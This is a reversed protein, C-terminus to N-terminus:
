TAKESRRRRECLPLIFDRIQWHQKITLHGKSGMARIKAQINRLTEARGPVGGEGPQFGTGLETQQSQM